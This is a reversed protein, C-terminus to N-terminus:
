PNEKGVKTEAQGTLRGGDCGRLKEDEGGGRWGLGVCRRCENEFMYISLNISQYISLYISQYTRKVRM